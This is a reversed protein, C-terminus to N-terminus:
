YISWNFCLPVLEGRISFDLKSNISDIPFHLNVVVLLCLSILALISLSLLLGTSLPPLGFRFSFSFCGVCLSLM